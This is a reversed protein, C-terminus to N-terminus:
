SINYVPFFDMRVKRAFVVYHENFSNGQEVQQRVFYQEINQQAICEIMRAIMAMIMGRSILQHVDSCLSKLIQMGELSRKMHILM